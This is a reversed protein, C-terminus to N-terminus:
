ARLICGPLALSTWPPKRRVPANWCGAPRSRLPFMHGPRALDTPKTAPISPRLVTECSRSGFHRHDHAGEGRDDRLLRHRVAVHEPRGDASNRARRPAEATMSLCILGRGNRAMFNIAEPTVKEAAITLDGENERDEDDVVILMRGQAFPRSPTRSALLRVERNGRARPSRCPSPKRKLSQMKTRQKTGVIPSERSVVEEADLGALQRGSRRVERRHRM